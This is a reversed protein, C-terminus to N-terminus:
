TRTGALYKDILGLILQEIEQNSGPIFQGHNGDTWMGRDTFQKGNEPLPLRNSVNVSIDYSSPGFSSFVFSAKVHFQKVNQLDAASETVAEWGAANLKETIRSHLREVSLGLSEYENKHISLVIIARPKTMVPTEKIAVQVPPPATVTNTTEPMKADGAKDTVISPVPEPPVAEQSARLREEAALRKMEEQKKIEARAVEQKRAEEQQQAIAAKLGNLQTYAATIDEHDPSIKKATDLHKGAADANGDKMAQRALLMLSDTIKGLGQLAAQNHPDLALIQQYHFYANNNEPETLQMDKLNREAQIQL